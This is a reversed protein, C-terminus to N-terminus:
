QEGNNRWAIPIQSVKERGTPQHVPKGLPRYHLRGAYFDEVRQKAVAIYAPFQECGIARRDRKLAALLASGVGSFPDLVWDGENTLALVCREVLEIPFQCPHMTKEPHNAKVNPINWLGEEWERQMLEWIDSPNKGLPNGSPQGYKDGKFHTKGPYKSPIRVNDLNFTYTDTKTFWLMVEYRGSFRKSAHLGHAFHWIIRNRLKLGLSKFVSYYFIDLPFIEGNEVYNGVQWCLSGEPSLTRILENLIPQLEAMYKDLDTTKEYVKGLNYPPSTIILKVSGTPITTLTQRSDGSLMVVNEGDDFDNAIQPTPWLSKCTHIM